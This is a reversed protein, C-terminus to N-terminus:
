IGLYYTLKGLDSMEFKKSMEGKFQKIVKFSTGTVFLHDVYIAILLFDGRENKRYVSPEKRCKNFRIEKLVQDLKM